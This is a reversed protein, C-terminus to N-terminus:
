VEWKWLVESKPLNTNQSKSTIVNQEPPQRNAKILETQQNLRSVLSDSKSKQIVELPTQIAEERQVVSETRIPSTGLVNFAPGPNPAGGAGAAGSAAGSSPSSGQPLPNIQIVLTGPLNNNTFGPRTILRTTKSTDVNVPIISTPSRLPPRVISASTPRVANTQRPPVQQVRRRPPIQMVPLNQNLPQQALSDTKVEAVVTRQATQSISNTNQPLSPFTRVSETIIQSRSSSVPGLESPNIVSNGNTIVNQQPQTQPPTQLTNLLPPGRPRMIQQPQSLSPANLISSRRPANPLRMIGNQTESISGALNPTQPITRRQSIRRRIVTQNRIQASPGSSVVQQLSRDLRDVPILLVSANSNAGFSSLSSTQRFQGRRPILSPRRVRRILPQRARNLIRQLSNSVRPMQSPNARDSNQLAVDSGSNTLGLARELSPIDMSTLIPERILSPESERLRTFFSDRIQSRTLGNRALSRQAISDQALMGNIGNPRRQRQRLARNRFNRRRNIRNLVMQPVADNPLANDRSRPQGNGGAAGQLRTRMQRTGIRSMGRRRANQQGNRVRNPRQRRRGQGNRAPPGPPTVNDPVPTAPQDIVTRRQEVRRIDITDFPQPTAMNSALANDSARQRNPLIQQNDVSTRDGVNNARQRGNGGGNINRQRGNVGGNNSRPRGNGGGNSGRPRGTGGGNGGRQRGNAGNRRPGNGNRSIARQGDGNGGPVGNERGSNGSAGASDPGPNGRSGIGGSFESIVSFLSNLVSGFGNMANGRGGQNTQAPENGGFQLLKRGTLLVPTADTTATENPIQTIPNKDKSKSSLYQSFKVVKVSGAQESEKTANSPIPTTQADVTDSLTKYDSSTDSLEPSTVIRTIKSSSIPNETPSKSSSSPNGEPPTIIRTQRSVDKPKSTATPKTTTKMGNASTSSSPAIAKTSSETIQELTVNQRSTSTEMSQTTSMTYMTTSLINKTSPNVSTKDSIKTSTPKQTMTPNVTLITITTQTTTTTTPATSTTTSTTSTTVELENTFADNIARLLTYNSGGCFEGTFDDQDLSSIM